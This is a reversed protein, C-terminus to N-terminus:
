STLFVAWWTVRDVELSEVATSIELESVPHLAVLKLALCRPSFRRLEARLEAKSFNRNSYVM